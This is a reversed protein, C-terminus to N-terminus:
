KCGSNDLGWPTKTKCFIVNGTAVGTMDAGTMDTETLNAEELNAYMLNAGTLNAGTLNSSQMKANSLNAGSLNANILDVQSFTAETLNAGSLNANTLNVRKGVLALSLDDFSIKQLDANPLNIWSLDGDEFIEFIYNTRWLALLKKGKQIGDAKKEQDTKKEKPLEDVKKVQQFKNTAIPFLDNKYIYVSLIFVIAALIYKIMVVGSLNQGRM